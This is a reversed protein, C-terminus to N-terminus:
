HVTLVHPIYQQPPLESHHKPSFEIFCQHIEYYLDIRWSRIMMILNNNLSSTLTLKSFINNSYDGMEPENNARYGITFAM